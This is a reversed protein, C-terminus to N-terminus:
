RCEGEEMVVPTSLVYLEKLNTEKSCDKSSLDSVILCSMEIIVVCLRLLRCVCSRLRKRNLRLGGRGGLNRKDSWVSKGRERGCRIRRFSKGEAVLGTPKRMMTM